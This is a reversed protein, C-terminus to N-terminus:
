LHASLCLDGHIINPEINANPGRQWTSLMQEIIGGVAQLVNHFAPQQSNHTQTTETESSMDVSGLQTKIFWNVNIAIATHHGHAQNTDFNTSPKTGFGRGVLVLLRFLFWFYHNTSFHLFWNRANVFTNLMSQNFSWTMKTHFVLM